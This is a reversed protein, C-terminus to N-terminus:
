ITLSSILINSSAQGHIDGVVNVPPSLELLMPQDLLVQRAAMCIAIIESQKLCFTKLSKSKKQELLRQICSDLNLVKEEKEVKEEQKEQVPLTLSEKAEEPKSIRTGM